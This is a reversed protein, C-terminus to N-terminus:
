NSHLGQSYPWFPLLVIYNQSVVATPVFQVHSIFTVDLVNWSLHPIFHTHCCHLKCAWNRTIGEIAVKHGLIMISSLVTKSKDPLQSSKYLRLKFYILQKGVSTLLFFFVFCGKARIHTGWPKRQRHVLSRGLTMSLPTVKASFFGNPPFTSSKIVSCVQGKTGLIPEADSLPFSCILHNEIQPEMPPWNEWM